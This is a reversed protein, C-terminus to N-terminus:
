YSQAFSTKSFEKSQMVRIQGCDEWKWDFVNCREIVYTSSGSVVFIRNMYKGGKGLVHKHVMQPKQLMTCSELDYVTSYMQEFYQDKGGLLVIESDSVHCLVTAEIPIDMALPVITWENRLESYREIGGCRGGIQYGGMIYVHNKYSTASATCRRSNMKAIPEWRHERLNFRECENHIGDTNQM